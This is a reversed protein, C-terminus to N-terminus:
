KKEHLKLEASNKGSIYFEDLGWARMPIYDELKSAMAKGMPIKALLEAGKETQAM